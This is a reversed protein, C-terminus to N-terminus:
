RCSRGALWAGGSLGLANVCLVLAVIKGHLGHSAGLQLLTIGAVELISLCAGFPGCGAV